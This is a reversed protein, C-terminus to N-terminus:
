AGYNSHEHRNKWLKFLAETIIFDREEDINALWESPMIYAKKNKVMIANERIMAQTRVAYLCGNRCYVPPLTQRNATEGEEVISDMWGEESLRYMRAPHMEKAEVVSIVGDLLPDKEFMEIVNDVDEGTRLPSTAQLLVILDFDLGTRKEVVNLAHLLVPLMPAEDNALEDPRMIVPAEYQRAVDSIEQDDTSVVFYSVKSSEKACRIAHAILPMGDLVRINKRKVGKSGGRAPIIALVKMINIKCTFLPSL